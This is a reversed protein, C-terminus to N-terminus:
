QEAGAPSAEVGVGERLKTLNSVAVTEGLALGSAIVAWQTESEVLDPLRAETFYAVEVARSEIIGDNTVVMVRDGSVAGRPVAFQMAEGTAVAALVFRGPPLSPAQGEPADQEVEVFVTITRREADAEPAIRAVSGTWEEGGPSDARLTAPSGVRVESAASLPLRVPVELLTPDLVRAVRDGARVREGVEVDVEQVLGAIPALIDTRSLDRRAREADARLSAAQAELQARKPLIARLSERARVRDRAVNIRTRIQQDIENATAAGRASAERLRDIERDIAALAETALEEQEQASEEEVDLLQVQAAVSEVNRELSDLRDQYDGPDISVLLEGQDIRIGEEIREPKNVIVGDIEAAVNASRVARVVGYGQYVRAVPVPRVTMARVVLPAAPEPDRPPEPKTSVLAGLVGAGLLLALVAVGARLLRGPWRRQRTKSQEQTVRDEGLPSFHLRPLSIDGIRM